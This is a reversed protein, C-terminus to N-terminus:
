HQASGVRRYGHRTNPGEPAQGVLHAEGAVSLNIGFSRLLQAQGGVKSRLRRVLALAEYAGEMGDLPKGEEDFAPGVHGDSDPVGITLTCRSTCNGVFNASYWAEGVEDYFQWAERQWGRSANGPNTSCCYNTIKPTNASILAAM